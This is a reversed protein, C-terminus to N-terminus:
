VFQNVFTMRKYIYIYINKTENCVQTMDQIFRPVLTGWNPPYYTTEGPGAAVQALRPQLHLISHDVQYGRSALVERGLRTVEMVLDNQQDYSLKKLEARTRNISLRM